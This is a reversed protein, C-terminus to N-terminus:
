IPFPPFFFYEAWLFCFGSQGPWDNHRNQMLHLMQDNLGIIHLHPCIPSHVGCVRENLLHLSHSGPRSIHQWLAKVQSRAGFVSVWGVGMRKVGDLRMGKHGTWQGSPKRIFSPPINVQCVFVNKRLRPEIESWWIPATLDIKMRIIINIVRFKIPVQIQLWVCIAKKM